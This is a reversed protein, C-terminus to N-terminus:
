KIYELRDIKGNIHAKKNNLYMIKLNTGYIAIIMNKLKLQILNNDYDIISKCGDILLDTDNQMVVQIQPAIKKCKDIYEDIFNNM